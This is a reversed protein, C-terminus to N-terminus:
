DDSSEEVDPDEIDEGVTGYDTESPERGKYWQQLFLFLDDRDVTGDNNFDASRPTPTDPLIGMPTPTPTDPRIGEMGTPTPSVTPTDPQIGMPTTTPIPTDSQIGAVPTDTLIPAPTETLPPTAPPTPTITPTDPLTGASMPTPTDPLIGLVAQQTATSTPADPRIGRTEGPDEDTGRADLQSLAPTRDPSDPGDDGRAPSSTTLSALAALSAATVMLSRRGSKQKSRARGAMAFLEKDSVTALIAREAETLAIGARNLADNRNRSFDKRFKSEAAALLLISEIGHPLGSEGGRKGVPQGGVITPSSDDENRKM